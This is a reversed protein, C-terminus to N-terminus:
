QPQEAFAEPVYTSPYFRELRNSQGGRSAWTLRAHIGPLMNQTEANLTAEGRPLRVAARLQWDTMLQRADEEAVPLLAAIEGADAMLREARIKETNEIRIHLAHTVLTTIGLLGASLVALAALTEILTGGKLMRLRM